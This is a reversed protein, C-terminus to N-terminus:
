NGELKTKKGTKLWDRVTRDSFPVLKGGYPHTFGERALQRTVESAQSALNTHTKGYVGALEQARKRPDATANRRSKLSKKGGKQRHGKSQLVEDELPRLGVLRALSGLNYSEVVLWALGETMMRQYEAIDTASDALDSAANDHLRLALRLNEIRNFIRKCDRAKARLSVVVESTCHATKKLVENVSHYARDQTILCEVAALCREPVVHQDEKYAAAVIEAALERWMSLTEAEIHDFLRQPATYYWARGSPPHKEGPGLKYKIVNPWSRDNTLESRPSDSTRM